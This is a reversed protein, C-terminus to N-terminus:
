NKSSKMESNHSENRLQTRTSHRKMEGSYYYSPKNSIAASVGLVWTVDRHGGELKLHPLFWSKKGLFESAHHGSLM